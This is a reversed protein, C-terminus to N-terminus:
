ACFDITAIAALDPSLLISIFKNLVVAARCSCSKSAPSNELHLLLVKTPDANLRSQSKM